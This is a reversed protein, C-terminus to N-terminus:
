SGRAAAKQAGEVILDTALDAYAERTIPGDERFWMYHWNLMGFLSMTVPKILASRKELSPVAAAVAASFRRVLVRELEVLEEARPKPLKKLENIQIQHEHDADRYCDLLAGVLARLRARPSGGAPPLTAAVLEELHERIIAVLLQEKTDYYHYLLAKSISCEAAIDAMSARDYGDRAFLRASAKLIAKRKDGYDAALPRAM